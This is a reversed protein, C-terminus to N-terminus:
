PGDEPDDMEAAADDDWDRPEVTRGESDVPPSEQDQRRWAVWPGMRRIGCSPRYVAVAWQAPEFEFSGSDPLSKHVWAGELNSSFWANCSSLYQWEDDIMARVVFGPRTAPDSMESLDVADFRDRDSPITVSELGVSLEDVGTYRLLEGSLAGLESSDRIADRIYGADTQDDTATIRLAVRYTTM